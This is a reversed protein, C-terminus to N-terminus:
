DRTREVLSAMSQIQSRVSAKVGLWLLGEGMIVPCGDVSLLFASSSSNHDVNPNLVEWIYELEFDQPVLNPNETKHVPVLCWYSFNAQLYRAREENSGTGKISDSALM